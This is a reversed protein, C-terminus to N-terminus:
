RCRGPPARRRRLPRVHSGRPGGGQIPLEAAQLARQYFDESDQKVKRAFADPSVYLAQLEKVQDRDLGIQRANAQAIPGVEDIVPIFGTAHCNSCSVATVARHNDQSTDLLIDSDQVINDNEDAIIFALMGNPLTFIAESGGATFGFPDQFISDNANDDFDFSQWFAGNRQQIDHREV